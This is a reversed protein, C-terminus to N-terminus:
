AQPVEESAKSRLWRLKEKFFSEESNDIVLQERKSDRFPTVILFSGSCNNFAYKEIERVTKPLKVRGQIYCNVFTNKDLSAMGDQIVVNTLNCSFFAISKARLNEIIVNKCTLLQIDIDGEIYDPIVLTELSVGNFMGDYIHSMYDLPNRHAVEFLFKTFSGRDYERLKSYLEDYNRNRLLEMNSVLFSKLESNNM